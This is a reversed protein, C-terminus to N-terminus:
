KREKYYGLLIDCNCEVLPCTIVETLRKKNFFVPMEQMGCERRITGDFEIIYKLPKCRYGTFKNLNLEYIKNAPIHEIEGTDFEYRYVDQPTNLADYIEYAEQPYNVARYETSHLRNLGYNVGYFKLKDILERLLRLHDPVDSINLRCAFNETKLNIAKELYEQNNYEPHWSAIIKVKHHKFLRQYYKLSRSLNTNVTIELCQPMSALREIIKNLQPNVSTEGGNFEILFDSDLKELRKLVFDFVPQRYNNRNFKSKLTGKSFCYSCDYNCWDTVNWSFSITHNNIDGANKVSRM